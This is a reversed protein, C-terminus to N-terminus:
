VGLEAAIRGNKVAALLEEHDAETRDAYTVAFGAV